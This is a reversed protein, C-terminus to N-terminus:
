FICDYGGEGLAGFIDWLFLGMTLALHLLGDQFCTSAYLV